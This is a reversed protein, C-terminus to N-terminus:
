EDQDLEDSRLERATHIQKKAKALALTIGEHEVDHTTDVDHLDDLLDDLDDVLPDASDIGFPELSESRTESDSVPKDNKM